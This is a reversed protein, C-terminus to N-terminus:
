TKLNKQCFKPKLKKKPQVVGLDMKKPQLFCFRKKKTAASKPRGLFARNKKTAPVKQLGAVLFSKAGGFYFIASKGALVAM